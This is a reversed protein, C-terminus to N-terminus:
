SICGHPTGHWRRRLRRRPRSEQHDIVVRQDGIRKRERKARVVLHIRALGAGAGDLEQALEVARRREGQDIEAQRRRRVRGVLAKLQDRLQECM